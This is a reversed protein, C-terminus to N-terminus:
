SSLDEDIGVKYRFVLEGGLYNGVLMIGLTVGMVILQWTGPAGIAPYAQFKLGALVGFTMLVVFQIVAHWSAIRFQDPKSGLKIYDILGFLAALLGGALGLLIVYFSAFFLQSQNLLIGALDFLFGASFLATPFHVLMPHIPHGCLRGKLLSRWM